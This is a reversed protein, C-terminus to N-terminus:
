NVAVKALGARAESVWAPDPSNAPKPLAAYEALAQKWESAAEASEGSAALALALHHRVLPLTRRDSDVSPDFGGVAERLYNVATEPLDKKFFVWGLTDAAAPNTRPNKSLEAKAEQALDLARDLDGGREAIWYALNNKAAALEPNLEIAREYHQMADPITKEDAEKLMGLLLHVEGAKPNKELATEYTRIVEDSRRQAALLGALRGYSDLQNPDLEIARQYSQEALPFQRMALAVDGHLRALAANKPEAEAAKGVRELSDAVRGERQDIAFLSELVEGNNPALALAQTLDARAAALEASAREAARADTVKGSADRSQRDLSIGQFLRVRGIAFLAEVGRQEAPIKELEALADNLQGQQVLSQAVAIQVDAGAGLELARKGAEVALAHDGLAAHTRALLGLAEPFNPQIELARAAAARAGTRDGKLFLASAQLFHAQALQPNRDIAKRLAALAADLDHQAFAIKAKVFNAEPHGDDDALVEEVAADAQAIVAADNKRQGIDVLVEARRLKATVNDPAVAIAKEAAELAGEVDGARGRYASLVLWPEPKDPQAATAQEVMRDAEAKQGRSGYFGALAYILEVNDPQAAIAQELTAEAEDFRERSALFNAVVTTAITREEPKANALAERYVAEADADRGGVGALFGGLAASTMFGPALSAVRRYAAEADALKGVAKLHNAYLLLPPAADPAVEAAQRLAEGAEEHRGLASLARGKLAFGEWRKPDLKVIADGTQVAEELEATGGLLLFEGHEIRAQVNNPDLRVTEVLEWYAARASAPDRKGLLAKALGYHGAADNPTLQTVNKYEIVAEDWKQEKALEAGRALHEAAREAEGKCGLAFLVLLCLASRVLPM